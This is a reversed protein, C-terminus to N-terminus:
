PHIYQLLFISEGGASVYIERIHEFAPRKSSCVGGSLYGLTDGVLPGVMKGDIREHKMNWKMFNQIMEIRDVEIRFDNLRSAM